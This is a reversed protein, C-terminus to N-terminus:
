TAATREGTVGAMGGKHVWDQEFKHVKDGGGGGGGGGGREAELTQQSTYLLKSTQLDGQGGAIAHM